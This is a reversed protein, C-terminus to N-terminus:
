GGGQGGRTRQFNAADSGCSALSAMRECIHITAHVHKGREVVVTTEKGGGRGRERSSDMKGTNIKLIRLKTEIEELRFGGLKTSFNNRQIPFTINSTYIFEKKTM